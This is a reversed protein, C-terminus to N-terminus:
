KESINRSIFKARVSEFVRWFFWDSTNQSFSPLICLPRHIFSNKEKCKADRLKMVYSNAEECIIQLSKLYIFAKWHSSRMRTYFAEFRGTFYIKVVDPPQFVAVRVHFLCNALPAIYFVHESFKCTLVPLLGSTNQWVINKFMRCFKFFLMKTAAEKKIFNCDPFRFNDSAAVLATRYFFIKKFSKCIECSFM